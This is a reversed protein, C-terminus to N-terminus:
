NRTPLRLKKKLMWARLIEMQNRPLFWWVTLGWLAWTIPFTLFLCFHSFMSSNSFKQESMHHWSKMEEFRSHAHAYVNVLSEVYIIVDLASLIFFSVDHLLLVRFVRARVYVATAIHNLANLKQQSVFKNKMSYITGCLVFIIELSNSHVWVVNGWVGSHTFHSVSSFYVSFCSTADFSRSWRM